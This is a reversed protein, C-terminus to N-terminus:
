RAHVRVFAIRKGDPSWAADSGQEILVRASGGEPSISMISRMASRGNFLISRGDPSWAPRASFSQSQSKNLPVPFGGGGRPVIALGAEHSWYVVRSGDPSWSPETEYFDYGALLHQARGDASMAYIQALTGEAYNYFEDFAILAGDPSWSPKGVGWGHLAILAPSMLQRASSGDANVVSIGDASGFAIRGGDPSWTPWQGEALDVEGSGDAGIVRVREDRHFAIRRGDPSWSPWGGEVLQGLVVGSADALFIFEAPTSQPQTPFVSSPLTGPQISTREGCAIAIPLLAGALLWAAFARRGTELPDRM